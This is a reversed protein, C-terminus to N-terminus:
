WIKDPINLERNALRALTFLLDSLRNLYKLIVPDVAEAEHLKAVSREARRCVGRAVQLSAAKPCGGPAIFSKLPELEADAADIRRELHDVAAQEVRAKELVKAVKEPNPSALRGGIAFLTEQITELIEREFETPETAIVAGIFSNLEDVEGYACIRLSSKEARGGGLYATTGTDGTRTYISM